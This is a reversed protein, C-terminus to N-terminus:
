FSVGAGVTFGGLTLDVSDDDVDLSIDIQRWGASAHVVAQTLQYTYKAGVEFEFFSGSDDGSDVRLGAAEGYVGFGYPLRVEGQVGVIPVPVAEDFEEKGVVDNEISVQADFIEVGLITGLRLRDTTLWDAEWAIRYINTETETDVEIGVQYTEGEFEIEFEPFETGEFQVKMMSAALRHDGGVWVKLFPVSDTSDLDLDEELDIRTGEFDDTSGKVEADMKPRWFKAEVGVFDGGLAQGSLVLAAFGIWLLGEKRRM